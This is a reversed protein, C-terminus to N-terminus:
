QLERSAVAAPQVSPLVLRMQGRLHQPRM